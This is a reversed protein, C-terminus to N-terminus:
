VIDGLEARLRKFAIRIRSKVTGLPIALEKSIDGHTKEEYFALQLVTKQDNPLQEMLKAIRQSWRESDVMQGPDLPTDPVLAPDNIDLEPRNEKRLLDIRANRAISFIWTSAKSKSPDFLKAKRWINVLTEQVIEDALEAKIGGRQVFGKLKPAFYEFVKKFAEKDQNEAINIICEDMIDLPQKLIPKHNEAAIRESSLLSDLVPARQDITTMASKKINSSVVPTGVDISESNLIM